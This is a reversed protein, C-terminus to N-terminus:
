RPLIDEMITTSRERNVIYGQRERIDLIDSLPTKYIRISETSLKGIYWWKLSFYGSGNEKILGRLASSAQAPSSLFNSINSPTSNILDITSLSMFASTGPKFKFFPDIILREYLYIDITSGDQLVKQDVVKVAGNPDYFLSGDYLKDWIAMNEDTYVLPFEAYRPYLGSSAERPGSLSYIKIYDVSNIYVRKDGIIGALYWKGSRSDFKEKGDFSIYTHRKNDFILPSTDTKLYLNAPLGSSFSSLPRLRIKNILSEEYTIDRPNSTVSELFEKQLRAGLSSNPYFTLPQTGGRTTIGEVNGSVGLERQKGELWEYWQVDTWENTLTRNQTQDIIGKDSIPYLLNPVSEAGYVILTYFGAYPYVLQLTQTGIRGDVKVITDAKKNFNQVRKIDEVTIKDQNYRTVWYSYANYEDILTKTINETDVSSSPLQTDGLKVAVLSASPTTDFNLISNAEIKDVLRTDPLSIGVRNYVFQKFNRWKMATYGKGRRIGRDNTYGEIDKPDTNRRIIQKLPSSM